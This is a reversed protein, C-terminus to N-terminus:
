WSASRRGTTDRSTIKVFLFMTGSGAAVVFNNALADAVAM